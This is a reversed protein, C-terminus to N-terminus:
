DADLLFADADLGIMGNLEIMRVVEDDDGQEIEDPIAADRRPKRAFAFSRLSRHASPSLSTDM